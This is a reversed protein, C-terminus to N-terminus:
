LPWAGLDRALARAEPQIARAHALDAPHRDRRDGKVNEGLLRLALYLALVGLERHQDAPVLRLMRAQLDERDSSLPLLTWLRVLDSHRTGPGLYEWDVVHVGGREPCWLANRHYFDGHAVPVTPLESAAQRAAWWLRTPVGGLLGKALRLPVARRPSSWVNPPPGAPPPPASAIRLATSIADDLYGAGGPASPEWWESVLWEGEPGAGLLPVTRVGVSQAWSRGWAERRLRLRGAEGASALEVILGGGALRHVPRRPGLRGAPRLAGVPVGAEALLNRVPEPLPLARLSLEPLREPSLFPTV